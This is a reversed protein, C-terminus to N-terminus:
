CCTRTYLLYFLGIIPTEGYFGFYIVLSLALYALWAVRHRGLMGLCAIVINLALALYLTTRYAFVRLEDSGVHDFLREVIVVIVAFSILVIAPILYLDRPRSVKM